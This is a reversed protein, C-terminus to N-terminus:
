KTEGRKEREREREREKKKKERERERERTCDENRQKKLNSNIKFLLSWNYQSIPIFLSFNQRM